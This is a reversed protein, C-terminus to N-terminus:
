KPNEEILKKLLEAPLLSDNTKLGISEAVAKAFRACDEQVLDYTKRRMWQELVDRAKLYQTSSVRVVLRHSETSSGLNSAWGEVLKGPVPGLKLKSGEEPYAGFSRATCSSALDSESLSFSVWAHGPSPPLAQAARASFVIFFGGKEERQNQPRRDLSAVTVDKVKKSVDDGLRCLEPLPTKDELLLAELLRMNQILSGRYHKAEDPFHTAWLTARAPLDFAKEKSKLFDVLSERPRLQQAHIQPTALIACVATALALTATRLM